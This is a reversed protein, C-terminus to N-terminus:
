TKQTTGYQWGTTQPAKLETNSPAMPASNKLDSEPLVEAWEGFCFDFDSKTMRQKYFGIVKGFSENSKDLVDRMAKLSVSGIIIKRRADKKRENATKLKKLKLIEADAKKKLDSMRKIRDELSNSKNEAKVTKKNETTENMM